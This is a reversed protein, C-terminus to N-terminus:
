EEAFFDGDVRKVDYSSEKAVGVGHDFMLSALRLGDILVLRKPSQRAYERARENFDGTTIIIGKSTRRGDLAGAFDRLEPEGVNGKWRKAQVYVADLGLNDENIVGDIGGDGTKGTVLARSTEAVSGGYGMTVLLEVVTRELFAATAARLRELIDAETQRRLQKYAAELVERPTASGQDIEPKNKKSRNPAGSWVIFSPYQKLTENNVQKPRQKLLAAGAPSLQYIGRTENTLLGAKKLYTKAWGFRNDFVPQGSTLLERMDADTLGVSRVVSAYVESVRHEKGDELASLLPLMLSQYDPVAM